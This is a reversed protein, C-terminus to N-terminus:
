FKLKNWPVLAWLEHDHPVNLFAYSVWQHTIGIKLIQIPKLGEIDLERIFRHRAQSRTEAYIFAQLWEPEPPDYVSDTSKDQHGANCFYINMM